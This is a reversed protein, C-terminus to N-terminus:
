FLLYFLRLCEFALLLLVASILFCVFYFTYILFYCIVHLVRYFWYCLELLCFRICRLFRWMWELFYSKLLWFLFTWCFFILSLYFFDDVISWFYEPILFTIVWIDWRCILATICKYMRSVVSYVSVPCVIAWWRYHFCEKFYM